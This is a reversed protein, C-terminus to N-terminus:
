AIAIDAVETTQGGQVVVDTATGTKSEKTATVTYTGYPVGTLLFEGLGNTTDTITKTGATVTVNAGEQVVGDDKVVGLIKGQRKPYYIVFPPSELDDPAYNGTFEIATVVEDKNTTNLTLGQMNLANYIQIIVPEATGSLTGVWTINDVYDTLELRNSGTIIEYIANTTKDTRGAALTAALTEASIELLQAAIKVDFRIIRMLGKTNDPAGDVEIPKIEPIATFSGGGRTAGLLKGAAVASEFTDTGIIYNKFYAGVDLILKEATASTLGSYIKSM